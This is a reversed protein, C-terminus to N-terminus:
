TASSDPSPVVPSVRRAGPGSEHSRRSLRRVVSLLHSQPVVPTASVSVSPAQASDAENCLWLDSTVKCATLQSVYRMAYASAMKQAVASECITQKFHDENLSVLHSVEEAVLTGMFEWPTWLCMEVLWIDDPADESSAAQYYKLTGSLNMYCAQANSDSFFVADGPAVLLLDLHGALKHTLRTIQLDDSMMLKRLFPLCDLNKRFRAFRLEAKLPSSLMELVALDGDQVSKETSKQPYSHQVFQVIRTSLEQPIHNYALFRRLARFQAIEAEQIKNLTTMLSTMTSVLTSFILLSAMAVFSAFVYELMNSCHIETSGVGLQSFAWYYSAVYQFMPDADDWGKLKLWTDTGQSDGVKSLGYWCCAIIHNVIVLGTLTGLLNFKVSTSHTQFQEQIQAGMKRLKLLRLVRLLSIFEKEPDSECDASTLRTWDEVVCLLDILLWTRMYRCFTKRLDQVMVGMEYYGTLMNVVLDAMWFLRACWALSKVVFLRQLGFFYLPLLLADHLVFVISCLDWLYRIRGGPRLPLASFCAACRRFPTSHRSGSRGSRSLDTLTHDKDRTAAATTVSTRRSIRRQSSKSWHAHPQHVRAVPLSATGFTQTQKEGGYESTDDNDISEPEGRPCEAYTLEPLAPCLSLSTQSNVKRGRCALAGISHSVSSAGWADPSPVPSPVGAARKWKSIEAAYCEGLRRHLEFFEDQARFGAAAQSM